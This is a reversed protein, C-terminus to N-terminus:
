APGDKRVLALARIPDLHWAGPKATLALGQHALARILEELGIDPSALIVIRGDIARPRPERPLLDERLADLELENRTLPRGNPFDETPADIM